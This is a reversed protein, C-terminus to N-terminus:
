ESSGIGLGRRKTGYHVQQHWGPGRDTQQRLLGDSTFLVVDQCQQVTSHEPCGSVRELPILGKTPLSGCCRIQLHQGDDECHSSFTLTWYCLLIINGPNSCPVEHREPFISVARSQFCHPWQKRARQFLREWPTQATHNGLLMLVDM